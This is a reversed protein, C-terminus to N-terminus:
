TEWPTRAAADGAFLVWRFVGDAILARLKGRRGGAARIATEKQGPLNVALSALHAL